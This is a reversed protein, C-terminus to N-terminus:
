EEYEIEYGALQDMAYRAVVAEGKDILLWREDESKRFRNFDKGDEWTKIYGNNLIIKVGKAKM